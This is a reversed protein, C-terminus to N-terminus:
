KVDGEQVKLLYVARRESNTIIFINKTDKFLKLFLSYTAKELCMVEDFLMVQIYGKSALFGLTFICEATCMEDIDIGQNKDTDYTLLKGNLSLIGQSNIKNLIDVLSNIDRDSLKTIAVRVKANLLNAKSKLVVCDMSLEKEINKDRSVIRM